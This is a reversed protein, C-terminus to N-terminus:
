LIASLIQENHLYFMIAGAIASLQATNYFIHDHLSRKEIIGRYIFITTFNTVGYALTLTALLGINAENLRILGIPLNIILIGIIAITLGVRRDLLFRTFPGEEERDKTEMNVWEKTEM